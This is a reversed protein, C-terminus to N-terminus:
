WLDIEAAAPAFTEGALRARMRELLITDLASAFAIEGGADIAAASLFVEIARMEQTLRDLEQLKEAAFGRAAAAGLLAAIHTEILALGEAVAGVESAVRRLVEGAPATAPPSSL